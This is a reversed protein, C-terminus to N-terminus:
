AEDEAPKRPRKPKEEDPGDEAAHDGVLVGDPVVDGAKLVLGGPGHIVPVFDARIRRSV